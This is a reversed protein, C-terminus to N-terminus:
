IHLDSIDIFDGLLLGKDAATAAPLEIVTAAKPLIKTFRNPSLDNYVAVVELDTTLFVVDITFKMGFTHIGKCPQLWLGSGKPLSTKGLLGKMRAFISDAVMLNGVLEINSRRIIAKM